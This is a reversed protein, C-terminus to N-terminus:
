PWVPGFYRELGAWIPPEKRTLHLKANLVRVYSQRASSLEHETPGSESEFAVYSVYFRLLFDYDAELAKRRLRAYLVAIVLLLLAVLVPIVIM